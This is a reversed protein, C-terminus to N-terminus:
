YYSFDDYAMLAGCRAKFIMENRQLPYGSQHEKVSAGVHHYAVAKPTFIVQYDESRAAFCYEVDEYTGAGYVDNFAGTTKDNAQKYLIEIRKWVVRSTMFLAGTVAQCNRRVNTKPNDNSWGILPHIMQGAINTGIGVHQVKGAPRTPDDSNLPFLLKAGVVGIKPDQMEALMELITDPQLEIDTNLILIYPAKGARVGRNVSQAFGRNQQNHLVQYGAYSYIKSLEDQEPGCDDVLIVNIKIRKIATELSALCITLLDARGYVPIIIDLEATSKRKRKAM